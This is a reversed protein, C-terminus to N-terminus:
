SPFPIWILATEITKRRDLKATKAYRKGDEETPACDEKRRKKNRPRVKSEM